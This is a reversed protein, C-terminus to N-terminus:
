VLFSQLLFSVYPFFAFYTALAHIPFDLFMQVDFMDQGYM